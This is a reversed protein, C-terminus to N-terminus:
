KEPKETAVQATANSAYVALARHIAIYASEDGATAPAFRVGKGLLQQVLDAVTKGKPAKQGFFDSANPQRLLALADEFDSLFRRAEGYQNPTLDRISDNLQQ